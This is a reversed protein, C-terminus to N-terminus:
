QIMARVTKPTIGIYHKFLRSMHSHDSFGCSHAIETITSHPQFLLKCAMEIKLKRMYDALTCNFHKSFYKSITVPHLDLEASLEELTVFENWRDHLLDKTKMLWYPFYQSTTVSMLDYLNQHVSESSDRERLNSEHYVKLLTSFTNAHTNLNEFALEGNFFDDDIEIILNKSPNAVHSNRHEEGEFYYITDGILQDYSRNSRTEHSGGNLVALLLKKEHYHWGWKNQDAYDVVLVKFLSTDLFTNSEGTYSRLM